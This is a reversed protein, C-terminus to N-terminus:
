YNNVGRFSGGGGGFGMGGFLNSPANGSFVQGNGNSWLAAGSPATGIQQMGAAAFPNGSNNGGGGSPANIAPTLQPLTRIEKPAPLSPVRITQPTSALTQMAKAIADSVAQPTVGPAGATMDQRRPDGIAGMTGSSQQARAAALSKQAATYAPNLVNKWSTAANDAAQGMSTLGNVIGRGMMGAASQSASLMPAMSPLAFSGSVNNVTTRDGSPIPAQTISAPIWSTPTSGSPAGPRGATNDMQRPNGAVPQSLPPFGGETPRPAAAAWNNGPGIDWSFPDIPKPANERSYFFSPSRTAAVDGFAEDPRVLDPLSSRTVPSVPAAMTGPGAPTRRMGSSLPPDNSSYIAGGWPEPAIRDQMKPVSAPPIPTENSAREAINSLWSAVQQIASPPQTATTRPAMSPPADILSPLATLATGMPKGLEAQRRTLTQTAAEMGRDIADAAMGGRRANNTGIGPSSQSGVFTAQDTIPDGEYTRFGDKKNTGHIHGGIWTSDPNKIMPNIWGRINSPSSHDPNAYNVHGGIIPDAGAIRDAIHKEVLSQVATSAKPTRQVSGYPKQDQPGTIKSFQRKQNLVGTTSSPFQGSAVRNLVTDTVAQISRYYEEPNSKALGHDVETAVVRGIYDIDQKSLSVVSSM